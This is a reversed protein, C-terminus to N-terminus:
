RLKRERMAHAQATLRRKAAILASRESSFGTLHLRHDGLQVTVSWGADEYRTLVTAVGEHISEAVVCVETELVHREEREIRTAATLPAGRSALAPRYHPHYYRDHM